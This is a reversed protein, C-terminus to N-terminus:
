KLHKLYDTLKEIKVTEQSRNEMNRVIVSKELVEKQGFIIVYPIQKKEAIALQVSISDKAISQAIPIKAKRLIEIIALSKLKAEWGLHAFFVKPKKIIKPKLNSWWPSHIVRDAGIAVGVAPVDKKAALARALYDYRGGSAIALKSEEPYDPLENFIEFVTRNYYSLGRVLFKNLRYNVKTEELYELVEKFHQQCNDCLFNMIDPAKEKIVQCKENKCDLVRLPNLRIRQKCDPCVSNIRRKYYNVLERIYQPRCEKDGISNIEVVLNKAGAEELINLASRIVLADTISKETGLIELGFQRFERYRGKQPRDHRWFPGYYYFMIPQPETQLGHELYARTIGATGEPRLVLREGGKARIQYMEKDVIDTGAGVSTTFIEEKELAPTEIPRFGYYVAIEQAKEFFGQFQYYEDGFIDRMGRPASAIEKKEKDKEKEM